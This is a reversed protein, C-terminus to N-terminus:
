SDVYDPLLRSMLNNLLFLQSKPDEHKSIKRGLHAIENHLDNDSEFVPIPVYRWLSKDYHLHASKGERWTNQLCPSNLISCVYLAEKESRMVGWYMKQDVITQPTVVTARLTNGSANYVVKIKKNDATHSLQLQRSLTKNFDLNEFLTQRSGSSRREKFILDNEYWFKATLPYLDKCTESNPDLLEDDLSPAILYVSERITQFPRLAQSRLIPLLCKAEIRASRALNKWSYKTGVKLRVDTTGNKRPVATTVLLLPQPKSQAGLRFYQEYESPVPVKTKRLQSTFADLSGLWDEVREIDRGPQASIEGFVACCGYPSHPFIAPKISDLSWALNHRVNHEFWDGGRWMKWSDNKIVSGPLVWGFRRKKDCNGSLYLRSARATFVSALDGKASSRKHPKVGEVSKLKEIVQKRSGDPTDNATLWPPNGILRSVKQEQLRELELRNQLHWTWVHNGESQIVESLQRILTHIEQQDLSVFKEVDMLEQDYAANFVEEIIQNSKPDLVLSRPIELPRGGPSYLVMGTPTLLGEQSETQLADGMAVRLRSSSVPIATSLTAKAMEVAIPHVDIGQVLMAMIDPALDLHMRFKRRLRSGIHLAAQFLFTGSGCAPDLVGHHKVESAAKQGRLIAISDEISQDLWDDDLTEQVVEAALEDPTYFEGFEKRDERDILAHYAVKLIDTTSGYWDYTRIKGQLSIALEKGEECETLWGHFGNAARLARTREDLDPNELVGLLLRSALVLVSHNLFATIQRSPMSDPPIIGSTRLLRRWLEFKTLLPQTGELSEYIKRVQSVLPLLLNEGLDKPPPLKAVQPNHLDFSSDIFKSFQEPDRPVQEGSLFLKAEGLKNDWIWGWIKSGDSLFGRWNRPEPTFLPAAVQQLYRQVQEQQNEDLKVGPKNPDAEGKAKTEILIHLEPCILDVRGPKLSKEVSWHFQTLDQLLIHLAARIDGEHSLSHLKELSHSLSPASKAM